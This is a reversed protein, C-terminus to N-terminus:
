EHNTLNILVVTVVSWHVCVTLPSRRVMVVQHVLSVSEAHHPRKGLIYSPQSVQSDMNEDSEEVSSEASLATVSNNVISHRDSDTDSETDEAKENADSM